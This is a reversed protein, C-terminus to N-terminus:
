DPDFNKKKCYNQYELCNDYHFKISESICKMFLSNKEEPILSYPDIKILKDTNKM